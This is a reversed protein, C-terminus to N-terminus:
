FRHSACFGYSRHLPPRLWPLRFAAPLPPDLRTFASFPPAPLIPIRKVQGRPSKIRLPARSRQQPDGAARHRPFSKKVSGSAPKPHKALPFLETPLADAEWASPRPNSGRKGSWITPSAGANSAPAKKKHGESKGEGFRNPKQEIPAGERPFFPFRIIEAVPHIDFRAERSSPHPIKEQGSTAPLNGQKLGRTPRFRSIDIPM